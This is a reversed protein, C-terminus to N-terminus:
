KMLAILVNKTYGNLYKNQESSKNAMNSRLSYISQKEFDPLFKNKKKKKDTIMNVKREKLELSLSDM